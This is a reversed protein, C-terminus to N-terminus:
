SSKSEKPFLSSSFYPHNLLHLLPICFSLSYIYVDHSDAQADSDNICKTKTNWAVWRRVVKLDFYDSISSDPFCRLFFAGVHNASPFRSSTLSGLSLTSAQMFAQARGDSKVQNEREKKSNMSLSLTTRVARSHSTAQCRLPASSTM